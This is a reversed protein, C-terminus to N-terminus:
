FYETKASYGIVKRKESRAECPHVGTKCFTEFHGLWQPYDPASKVFRVFNKLQEITKTELEHEIICADKDAIKEPVKIIELFAKITDHRDKVVSAIERGKPTLTVGDYKRYEVLGMDNLRKLMEVVSSPKIDLASAIDKVRTYGKKEAINLIAELYDEAKRSLM